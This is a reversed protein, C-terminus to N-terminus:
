SVVVLSPPTNTTGSNSSGMNTTGTNTTGTNSSGTQTQGEDDSRTIYLTITGQSCSTPYQRDCITYTFGYKGSKLIPAITLQGNEDISLKNMLRSGSLSLTVDQIKARSGSYIDNFLIDLSGTSQVKLEITDATAQIEPYIVRITINGAGCHSTYM